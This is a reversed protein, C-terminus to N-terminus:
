SGWPARYAGPISIMNV